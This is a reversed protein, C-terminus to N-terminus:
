MVVCGLCVHNTRGKKAGRARSERFCCEAFLASTRRVDKIHADPMLVSPISVWGVKTSQLPSTLSTLALLDPLMMLLGSVCRKVETPGPVPLRYPPYLGGRNEVSSQRSTPRTNPILTPTPRRIQRRKAALAAQKVTFGPTCICALLRRIQGLGLCAISPQFDKTGQSGITAM